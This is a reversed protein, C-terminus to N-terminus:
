SATLDEAGLRTATSVVRRGSIMEIDIRLYHDHVGPAWPRLPLQRLEDLEDTDRIERATGVVVVSWGVNLDHNEFEDVEFAVVADRAARALRSHAATRVVISQDHMMFNVPQIAPMALVTFVIRGVPVKELLHFCEERSLVELGASDYM